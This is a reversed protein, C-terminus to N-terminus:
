VQQISEITPYSHWCISDIFTLVSLYFKGMRFFVSFLNLFFFLSKPVRSCYSFIWCKYWQLGLLIPSLSASLINSYHLLHWIQCFFICLYLSRLLSWVPHIWLLEYWCMVILGRFVLLCPYFGSLLWLFIICWRDSFVLVLSLIYRM